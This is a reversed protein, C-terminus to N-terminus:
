KQFLEKEWLKIKLLLAEKKEKELRKREIEYEEAAHQCMISAFLIIGFFILLGVLPPVHSM